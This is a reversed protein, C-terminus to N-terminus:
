SLVMLSVPVDVLCPVPFTSDHLYILYILALEMILREPSDGSCFREVGFGQKEKNSVTTVTLFGDHFSSPFPSHDNM